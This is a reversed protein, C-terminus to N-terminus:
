PIDKRYHEYLRRETRSAARMSILSIAESGLAAFVVVLTGDQSVGIAKWRGSHAAVVLADEFFDFELAAFDYGHKEINSLRKAEDYTVEM